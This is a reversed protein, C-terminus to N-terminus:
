SAIKNKIVPPMYNEDHKALVKTATLLEGNMEGGHMKGEAVVGKGEKFLDPILGDYVVQIENAQDTIVFYLLHEKRKVSGPKLLGGIRVFKGHLEHIALRAETPTYFFNVKEKLGYFTLGTAFSIFLIFVSLIILRQKRLSHM